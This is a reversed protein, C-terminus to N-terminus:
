SHVHALHHHTPVHFVASVILLATVFVMVLTLLGELSLGRPCMPRYTAYTGDTTRGQRVWGWVM